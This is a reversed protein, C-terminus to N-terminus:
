IKEYFVEKLLDYEEITLLEKGLEWFNDSFNFLEVYTDYTHSLEFCYIILNHINVSKNKIIELAKLDKGITHIMDFMNPYYAIDCSYFNNIEKKIEELAELSKGM